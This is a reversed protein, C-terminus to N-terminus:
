LIDAEADEEEIWIEQESIDISGLRELRRKISDAKEAESQQGHYLLLNSLIMTAYPQYVSPARATLDELIDLAEQYCKEAKSHEDSLKHTNGLNNLAFGLRANHMEPSKKVLERRIELGRLLVEQAEPLRSTTSLLVGLNNLTTAVSSLFVEPTKEALAQRVELAERLAEEAENNENMKRDLVGLNNLVTGLLHLHFINEPYKRALERGIDLARHYFERAKAGEGTERLLISYNSLAWAICKEYFDPWDQSLRDYNELAEDYYEAAKSYQRIEHCLVAFDSLVQTHMFLYAEPTESAAKKSIELAEKYHTEAKTYNGVIRLALAYYRHAEFLQSHYVGEERKTIKQALGLNRRLIPESEHPRSTLRLVYGLVTLSQWVTPDELGKDIASRCAAEAEDMRGANLLVYGLRQLAYGQERVDLVPEAKSDVLELAWRLLDAAKNLQHLNVLLLSYFWFLARIQARKRLVAPDLERIIRLAEEYMAASEVPQGIRALLFGYSVFCQALYVRNSESDAETLEKLVDTAEGLLHEAEAVRDLVTLHLAKDSSIITRERLSEFSISDYLEVASRNQYRWSLNYAADLANEIASEPSHLGQVSISLGLLKMDEQEEAAKELLEAVEDALVRFRDGLEAVVLDRALDHLVYTEDGRDKAFSLSVMRTWQDTNMTPAIINMVNRDFYPLLGARNVLEQLDQVENFLKRWTKLRIEELSDSRLSEVSALSLSGSESMDCLTGIVFPNGGSVSVIREQLESDAVKRLNLLEICSERDL